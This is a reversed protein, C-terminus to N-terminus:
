CKRLTKPNKLSMKNYFNKKCFVVIVVVVRIEENMRLAIISEYLSKLLKTTGSKDNSDIQKLFFTANLEQVDRREAFFTM